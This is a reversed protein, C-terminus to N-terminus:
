MPETLINEIAAIMLDGEKHWSTNNVFELGNKRLTNALAPDRLVREIADALKAIGPEALMAIDDNLLWETCPARNSIVPVGCAMIELPLLSLNTFSLVLAADCSSYLQALEDPNKLGAHDCPFPFAYHTVDWGAMVVTIEPMRKQLEAFILVGLEFARRATPPRVYFFVRKGAHSVPSTSPLYLARDYSFGLPYCEMGFTEHLKTSLWSGATFARFGFQYTQEALTHETGAPSFWPEYDQVFYCKYSPTKINNVVYATQWSTAISMVAYPLTQTIYFVDVNEIQYWDALKQKVKTISVSNDDEIIIVRNRYGAQALHKMFRFLNLHGGSGKGIAPIFWNITRKADPTSLDPADIIPTFELFRYAHVVDPKNFISRSSKSRRSLIKLFSSLGESRIHNVSKKVQSIFFHLNM